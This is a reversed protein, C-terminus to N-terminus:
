WARMEFVEPSSQVSTERAIDVAWAESVVTMGRRMRQVTSKM